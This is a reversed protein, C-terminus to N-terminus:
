GTRRPHRELKPTLLQSALISGVLRVRVEDLPVGRFGEKTIWRELAEVLVVWFGPRQADLVLAIQTAWFLV